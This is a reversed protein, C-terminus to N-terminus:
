EKINSNTANSLMLESSCSTLMLQSTHSAGVFGFITDLDQSVANAVFSYICNVTSINQLGTGVTIAGASNSCYYQTPNVSYGRMFPRKRRGYYFYSFSGGNGAQRVPQHLRVRTRNSLSRITSATYRRRQRFTARKLNRAGRPAGRMTRYAMQAAGLALPLYRSSFKRKPM